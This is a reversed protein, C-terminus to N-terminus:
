KILGGGVVKDNDYFVATQGPTVAYVPQNFIIKVSDVDLREISCLKDSTNFRIKATLNKKTEGVAIEESVWNLKEVYVFSESLEEKESIQITNNKADIKKVYMPRTFGGGLGKRQGITYYPFGDHKRNKLINGDSDLMDGPRVIKDIGEINEKLFRKYDNDPIFCIEMSETKNATKLNMKKAIERVKDKDQIDALPFVTRKLAEQTIGYLFYSQDKQPNDGRLLEYRSTEKNHNIKAYHGTALYECDLFDAKKLLEQWKIITNCLICPNPTRGKMYERKFDEIVYKKFPEKFNLVYHPIDLQKAVARADDFSELSCCGKESLVNGGYDEFSWLNMTVGVVEYGQEKLLYAAVSSDVGGSMGLLVRGKKMM